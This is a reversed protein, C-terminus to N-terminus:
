QYKLLFILYKAEDVVDYGGLINGYPDSLIKIGYTDLLYEGINTGSPLSGRIKHLIKWYKERRMRVDDTEDKWHNINLPGDLDSM